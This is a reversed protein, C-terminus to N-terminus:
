PLATGSKSKVLGIDSSNINGDINVDSRFNTTDVVQGSRSKTQGIDSSDVFTDATTDSLLVAMSASVGPSFNGASDTVNSLSVTVYQANTVGTLNVIYNHTDADIM